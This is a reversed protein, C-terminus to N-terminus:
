RVGQSRSSCSVAHFVSDSDLDSFLLGSLFCLQGHDDRRRADAFVLVALKYDGKGPRKYHVTTGLKKLM